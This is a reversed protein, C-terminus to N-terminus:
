KSWNRVRTRYLQLVFDAKDTHNHRCVVMYERWKDKVRSTVRQNVNEDFDDPVEGAADVRVLMREMKVVLGDRIRQRRLKTPARSISMQAQKARLQVKARKSDEPLDFKVLNRLNSKKRTLHGDAHEEDNPSDSKSLRLESRRKVKALIGKAPPKSEAAAREPAKNL